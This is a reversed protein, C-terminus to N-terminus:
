SELLPVGLQDALHNAQTLTFWVVKRNPNYVRPERTVGDDFSIPGIPDGDVESEHKFAVGVVNHISHGHEQGFENIESDTAGDLFATYSDADQGRLGADNDSAAVAHLDVLKLGEADGWTGTATDIYIM